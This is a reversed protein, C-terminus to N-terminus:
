LYKGTCTSAVTLWLLQVTGCVVAPLASDAVAVTGCDPVPEASSGVLLVTCFASVPVIDCDWM